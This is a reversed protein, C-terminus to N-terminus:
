HWTRTFSASSGVLSYLSFDGVGILSIISIQDALGNIGSFSIPVVLRVLSLGFFGVLDNHGSILDSLNVLGVLGVQGVISINILGNRAVTSTLSSSSLALSITLAASASSELSAIWDSSTSSALSTLLAMATSSATTTSSNSKSEWEGECFMGCDERFHLSKKSYIVILKFTQFSTALAWAGEHNSENAAIFVVILQHRKFFLRHCHSNILRGHVRKKPSNKTTVNTQNAFVPLPSARASQAGKYICSDIQINPFYDSCEM